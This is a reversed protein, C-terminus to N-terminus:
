VEPLHPAPVSGTAPPAFTAFHGDLLRRPSPEVEDLDLRYVGPGEVGPEREPDARSAYCLVRGDPDVQPQAAVVQQFFVLRHVQEVTPWFRALRRPQGEGFALRQWWLGEKINEREVLLLHEPGAWAWSHALGRYLPIAAKDGPAWLSLAIVHDGLDEGIVVRRGGPEALLVHRGPGLPLSEGEEGEPGLVCLRQDGRPTRLVALFGGGRDLRQPVGFHGPASAVLGDARGTGVPRVVLRARGREDEALVLLADGDESWAFAVRKAEEILRPTRLAGGFVWLEDGGDVKVLAVKAGGRPAFAAAFPMKEEGPLELEVESPGEVETWMVSRPAGDADCRFALASRGDPALFPVGVGGARHGLDRWSGGTETSWTLQRAVGGASPLLHLQRDAGIVLLPPGGRGPEVASM